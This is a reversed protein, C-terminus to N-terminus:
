SASWGGDLTLQTGTISSAEPSCLFAVSGAVEHPDILRKV